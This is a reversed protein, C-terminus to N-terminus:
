ESVRIEVTYEGRVWSDTLTRLVIKVPVTNVGPKLEVNDLVPVAYAESNDIGNVSEAPGIVQVSTITQTLVEANEPLKVGDTNVGIQLWRKSMERMDVVVTFNKVDDAFVYQTMEEASFRFTNYANDLQSFDITGISIEKTGILQSDNAPVTLNLFEPDVTYEVGDKRYAKPINTFTASTKFSSTINVKITVTVPEDNKVHVDSIQVNPTVCIYQIEAQFTETGTLAKNLEVHALVDAIKNIELSPGELIVTESSLVPNERTYGEPLSYEEGEVVDETLLFEREVPQDFYVSVANSSVNVVEVGAVDCNVTVPLSYTGPANVAALSVTADLNNVFDEANILYSKGEVTVDVYYDKTGFIQLDNNDPLSGEVNIRVKVNQFTKTIETTKFMSIGCWLVIAILLSLVFVFWNKEILRSFVTGNNRKKEEM